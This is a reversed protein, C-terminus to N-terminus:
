PVLLHILITVDNTEDTGQSQWGHEPEAMRAVLFGNFRVSPLALARIFVCVVHAVIM